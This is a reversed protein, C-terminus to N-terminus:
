GLNNVFLSYYRDNIDNRLSISGISTDSPPDVITVHREIHERM